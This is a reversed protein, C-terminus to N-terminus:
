VFRVKNLIAEKHKQIIDKHRSSFLLRDTLLISQTGQEFTAWRTLYFVSYAILIDTVESGLSKRLKWLYRGWLEGLGYKCKNWAKRDRLEGIKIQKREEVSHGPDLDRVIGWKKGHKTLYYALARKAGQQEALSSAFYDAIGEDMAQAQLIEKARPTIQQGARHLRAVADTVVHVFEHYVLRPDRVATFGTSRLQYFIIEQGNIDYWAVDDSEFALRLQVPNLHSYLDLLYFGLKERFYRQIFDLHYYATVRDFASESENVFIGQQDRVYNNIQDTIEAYKGRLEATSNLGQLLGEDKKIRDDSLISLSHNKKELYNRVIEGLGIQEDAL